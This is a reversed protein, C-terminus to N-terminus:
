QWHFSVVGRMAKADAVEDPDEAPHPGMTKIVAFGQRASKIVNCKAQKANAPDDIQEQHGTQLAFGAPLKDGAVIGVGHGQAHQNKKAKKTRMPQLKTIHM